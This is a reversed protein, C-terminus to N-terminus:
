MQPLSPPTSSTASQQRGAAAPRGVIEGRASGKEVMIARCTDVADHVRVFVWSKGMEDLLGSRELLKAVPPNPNSIVLQIAQEQLERQLDDLM